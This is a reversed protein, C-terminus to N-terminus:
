DLLHVSSADFERLVREAVARPCLLMCKVLADAIVAEKAVVTAYRKILPDAVTRANPHLRSGPPPAQQTHSQQDGRVYYGQHEVPRARSDADSVALAADALEFTNYSGDSLRLLIPETRPGFVRLDGGANVLGTSCGQATLVAIARDVAYGKAFGGFDLAVPAHCVVYGGFGDDIAAAGTGAELEVDGTGAALEVDGVRGPREPLCPDFVGDTLAHLRKALRLLKWTAAHVAVAQRLPASNIRGLDSHAARPHMRRDIATVAAFAADIAAQAAAVSGSTAEIAVLTGLSVRLRRVTPPATRGTPALKTAPM